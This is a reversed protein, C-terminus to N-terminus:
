PLVVELEELMQDLISKKRTGRPGSRLVDRYMCGPHAQIWAALQDRLRLWDRIFPTVNEVNERIYRTQGLFYATLLAAQDVHGADAIAAGDSHALILLIRAMQSEAKAWCLQLFEPVKDDQAHHANYWAVWLRRAEPTLDLTNIDGGQARLRYWLTSYDEIAAAAGMNEQWTVPPATGQALLFREVLGDERADSIGAFVGPQIGGLISVVPHSVRRSSGKTVRDMLIPDHSWAALWYQRDRGLGSKYANMGGVWGSLEDVPVLVGRPNRSLIGALAEMTADDVVIRPAGAWEEGPEAEFLKDQAERLPALLVRVAPSKRAGAEGVLAVYLSPYITWTTSLRLSSYAGLATALCPLVGAGLYDVPCSIEASVDTVFAQVSVPLAEVPFEIVPAIEPLGSAPTSTDDRTGSVPYFAEDAGYTKLTIGPMYIEEPTYRKLSVLADFVEKDPCGAFCKPWVRGDAIRTVGLSPNRDGNLHASGPCSENPLRDVVDVGTGATGSAGGPREWAEVPLRDYPWETIEGRPEIWERGPAPPAVFLGGQGRTDITSGYMAAKTPVLGRPDRFIHQRGGRPTTMRWAGWVTAPLADEDEIGGPKYVDVDLSALGSPGCLVLIDANPHNTFLRTVEDPDCSATSWSEYPRKKGPIGPLVHWGLAAYELAAQLVDEPNITDKDM